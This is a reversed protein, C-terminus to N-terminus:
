ELIDHPPSSGAIGVGRHFLRVIEELYVISAKWSPEVNQGVHHTRRKQFFLREGSLVLCDVWLVLLVENKIWPFEVLQQTVQGVWPAHDISEANAVSFRKM